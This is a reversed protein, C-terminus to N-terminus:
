LPHNGTYRIQVQDIPIMVRRGDALIKTVLGRRQDVQYGQRNLAVQEYATIPPPQNRLWEEYKGTSALIPVGSQNNGAGKPLQGAWRVVQQVTPVYRDRGPQWPALQTKPPLAATVPRAGGSQSDGAPSKREAHSQVVSVRQPGSLSRVRQGYWGLAFSAAIIGAAIPGLIWRRGTGSRDVSSVSLTARPAHSKKSEDLTRFSERWCQAELFALTCRKWGDVERELRDVAARLEAPTLAGDVIQDIFRDLGPDIADPETM